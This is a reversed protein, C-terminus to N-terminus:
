DARDRVGTIGVLDAREVIEKRNRASLLTLLYQVEAKITGVSFGLSKAISANSKGDRILEIIAHQRETLGNAPIRGRGARRGAGDRASDLHSIRQWLAIAASTGQLHALGPWDWPGDLRTIVSCVGTLTGAYLIPMVVLTSGLDALDTAPGDVLSGDGLPAMLPFAGDLGATPLILPQTSHFVRTVPFDWEVPVTRYDDMAQEFGHQGSLVLNRRDGDVGHLSAATAGYRAMPGGCLASMLTHGDPKNSIVNVFTPSTGLVDASSLDPV